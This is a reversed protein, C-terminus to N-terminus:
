QPLKLTAHVANDDLCICAKPIRRQPDGNLSPITSELPSYWIGSCCLLYTGPGTPITRMRKPLNLPDFVRHVCIALVPDIVLGM